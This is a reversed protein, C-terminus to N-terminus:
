FGQQPPAPPPPVAVPPAPPAPPAVVGPPPAPVAPAAPPAPPAVPPAVPAAPPAAPMVPAAAQAVPQAAMAPAGQMPKVDKIQNRPVGQYPEINVTISAQRGVLAEAVQEMAPNQAFYEGSLGLAAMHRFFFGLANPSEPSITFNTFVIRDNQPGGLVKFQVRLMAKGKKSPAAEAKYVQANYTGEPIPSFGEGASSMLESFNIVTM